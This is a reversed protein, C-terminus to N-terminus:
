LVDRVAEPPRGLRVGKPTEVIPREVLIPYAVMAALVQADTAGDLGAAAAEKARLIERPRKGMDKLLRKLLAATWGTELYLVVEPAHGAERILALTERSKGCRPNHYITVPFSM